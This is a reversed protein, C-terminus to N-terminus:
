LELLQLPLSHPRQTRPDHAHEAPKPPMEHASGRQGAEHEDCPTQTAGPRQSHRAPQAPSSQELGTQTVPQERWPRQTPGESHRQSGPHSPASQASFIHLIGPKSFRPMRADRAPWVSTTRHKALPGPLENKEPEISWLMM